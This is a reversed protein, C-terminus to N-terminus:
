WSLRWPHGPGRAPWGRARAVARAGQNIGPMGPGVDAALLGPWGARYLHMCHAISALRRM